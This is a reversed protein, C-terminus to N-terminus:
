VRPGHVMQLFRDRYSASSELEGTFRTTITKVGPQRRIPVSFTESLARLDGGLWRMRVGTRYTRFFPVRGGTGWAYLLLPFDVGSRVAVEVSASLRPNIEMLRARGAADRRFEIESYGELGLAEVLRQAAVTIDRPLAISERLISNGGLPPLMRAARQAFRALFRGGAYIFSIAERDGSLWDQVFVATGCALMAEIHAIAVSREATVIARLSAPELTAVVNDTNDTIFQKSM